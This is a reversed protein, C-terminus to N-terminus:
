RNDKRTRAASTSRAPKATPRCSPANRTRTAATSNSRRPRKASARKRPPTTTRQEDMIALTSPRDPPEDCITRLVQHFIRSRLRYPRRGSLLEYLVVGLSYVDTSLGVEEGRVQEPSAYEPTMLHMATRTLVGTDDAPDIRVLKAIGFDLLKVVGDTTVLINSPKIDRHLIRRQHAYHVAGCVTRFLRLRESINLNHEDCWIDIPKGDVYEMVFYPLGDDTTGGDLLRTINPHEVSALLQREQMFRRLMEESRWMSNLVKIAVLKHFAEIRAALYVTGM